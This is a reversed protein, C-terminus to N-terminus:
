QMAINAAHAASYQDFGGGAINDLESEVVETLVELNAPTDKKDQETAKEIEKDLKTM